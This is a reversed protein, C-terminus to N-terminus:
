LAQMSGVGSEIARRYVLDATMVDEVAMGLSKFVTIEDPSRRGEVRGLVLEGLEGAIHDRGFRGEAMGM